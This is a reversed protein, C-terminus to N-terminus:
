ISARCDRAFVTGVRRRVRHLSAIGGPRAYYKELDNLSGRLNVERWRVSYDRHPDVRYSNGYRRVKVKSLRIVKLFCIPGSDQFHISAAAQNREYRVQGVSNCKMKKMAPKLCEECEVELRRRTRQPLQYEEAAYLGFPVITKDFTELADLLASLQFQGTNANM